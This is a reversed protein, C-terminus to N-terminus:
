SLEWGFKQCWESCQKKIIGVGMGMGGGGKGVHSVGEGNRAVPWQIYLLGVKALWESKQGCIGERWSRGGWERVGFGWGMRLRSIHM